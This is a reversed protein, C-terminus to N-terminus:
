IFYIDQAISFNPFAHLTLSLNNIVGVTNVVIGDLQVVGKELPEYEIGLKDVIQKPMVFSSAGSEIMYNHVLQDGIILSVYFPPPKVKSDQQEKDNVTTNTLVVKDKGMNPEQSLSSNSLTSQLLDKHGLISLSDWMSM